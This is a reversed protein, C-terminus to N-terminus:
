LEAVFSAKFGANELISLVGEINLDDEVTVDLLKDDVDTNVKWEVISFEENLFPSVKKICNGCNINTKFQYTKM